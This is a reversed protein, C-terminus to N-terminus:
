DKILRDGDWEYTNGSSKEIDSFEPSDFDLDIEHAIIKKAVSDTTDFTANLYISLDIDEKLIQSLQSDPCEISITLTVNYSVTLTAM